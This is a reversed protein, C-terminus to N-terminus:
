QGCIASICFRHSSGLRHLHQAIAEAVGSAELDRLSHLAAPGPNPNVNNPSNCVNVAEAWLPQTAALSRPDASIIVRGPQTTATAPFTPDFNTLNIPDYLPPLRTIRLGFDLTLKQTARFTDAAYGYFHTTTGDINRPPTHTVYTYYPVGVLFDAFNNGTYQGNFFFDGYDDAASSGSYWTTILHLKRLDFGFKMTHKGKTWTLNENIQFTNSLEPNPRTHVINTINGNRPEFVFDPFGGPPFPGLQQPNLGLNQMFAPGDIPFVGGNQRRSIGGRLENVLNSTIAYNHALVIQNDHEFDAEAPLGLGSPSVLRTNKYTWRGFVNQKANITHDIRIDFQDSLIPNPVNLTHNFPAFNNVGGQIPLPYYQLIATAVPSIRSAPITDNPFPTGDIDNVTALGNFNGNRMDQSPVTELIATQTRYRMGEYDGFFFTHNKFLPGSVSGGFTNASKAAKGPTGVVFRTADLAANQFYEFVSGHFANTGSKSTTTIDAPSGYEAGGGSGQVKMESISEASPFMEKQPGSSRINVTSIGDMSYEAENTGTGQVSINGNEDGTVGPLFALLNYPSTSGAGRYNAPLGLVETSTVNASIAQTETNVLEANAEVTVKEAASGVTLKMDARVTQRADLRVDTLVADKFGTAIASVTYVGAKMNEAQYNGQADSHVERSINEGQNTIKIVADAIVAGSADTVSGLITGFVTQGRGPLALCLALAVISITTVFSKFKM